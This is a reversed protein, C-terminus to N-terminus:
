KRLDGIKKGIYSSCFFILLYMNRSLLGVLMGVSLVIEYILGLIKYIFDIKTDTM